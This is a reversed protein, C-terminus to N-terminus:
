RRSDDSDARRCACAREHEAHAVRVSAHHEDALRRALVLVQLALREDAGRSLQEVLQERVRPQLAVVDVDGVHQLAPRRAVAIGSGSSISVHM